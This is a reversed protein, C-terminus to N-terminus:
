QASDLRLSVRHRHTHQVSYSSADRSNALDSSERRHDKFLHDSFPSTVSEVHDLVDSSCTISTVVYNLGLHRIEFGDDKRLALRGREFVSWHFSSKM